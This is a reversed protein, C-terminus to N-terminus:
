QAPAPTPEQQNFIKGMTEGVKKAASQAAGSAFLSATGAVLLGPVGFAMGALGGALLTNTLSLGKKGGEQAKSAAAMGLGVTGGILAGAPWAPGALLAGAAAGALVSAGTKGFLANKAGKVFKSVANEAKQPQTESVSQPAQAGSVKMEAM